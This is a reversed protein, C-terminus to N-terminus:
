VYFKRLAKAYLQIVQPVVSNGVCRSAAEALGGSLGNVVPEVPSQVKFWDRRTYSSNFVRPRADPRNEKKAQGVAKEHRADNQLRVGSSHAALLIVRERKHGAGVDSARVCDWWCDYGFSALHHLIGLFARGKDVTLLAAPNEFICFDPLLWRAARLAEPWLWRADQRGKRKGTYSVPQCPVGGALVAIHGHLRRFEEAEKEFHLFKTIDGYNPKDPWHANLVISAEPDIECFAATEFGEAEFAYSFGGIGSFLDLVKPTM